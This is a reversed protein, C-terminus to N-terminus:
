TELGSGVILRYFKRKGVRIIIEQPKSIDLELDPEEVRQGDLYVGGKDPRALGIIMYFTTTKGAGNPGLLGVVEESKLELSLDDVVKRNGFCKTLGKTELKQMKRKKYRTGRQVFVNELDRGEAITAGV